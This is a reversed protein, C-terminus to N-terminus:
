AVGKPTWMTDLQLLRVLEGYHEPQEIKWRAVEHMLRRPQKRRPPYAFQRVLSDPLSQVRLVVERLSQSSRGIRGTVWPLKPM